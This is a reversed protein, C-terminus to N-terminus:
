PWRKLTRRPLHQSPRRLSGSPAVSPHQQHGDMIIRGGGLVIVRTCLREVNEVVHSSYLIGRGRAALVTDSEAASPNVQRGAPSQEDLILVKQDHLLAPDAADEAENGEFVHQHGSRGRREIRATGAVGGTKGHRTQDASQATRSGPGTSARPYFLTFIRSPCTALRRRFDITGGTVELGSYLVRGTTPEILGTLMKLTMSKGSGNPGLYGLIEGPRLIFSVDSVAAHGHFRKVLHQAELCGQSSPDSM